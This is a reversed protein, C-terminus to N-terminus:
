SGGKVINYVLAIVPASMIFVMLLKFWNDYWFKSSKNNANNEGQQIDRDRELSGVREGLKSQNKKLTDIEALAHERLNESELIIKENSIFNKNTNKALETIASMMEKSQEQSQRQYIEQAALREAFSLNNDLLAKLSQAIEKEVKGEMIKLRM